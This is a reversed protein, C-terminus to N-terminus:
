KPHAIGETLKKKLPKTDLSLKAAVAVALPVVALPVVALPVVALPAAFFESAIFRALSWFFMAAHRAARGAELKARRALMSVHISAAQLILPSPKLEVM